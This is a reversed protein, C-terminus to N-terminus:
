LSLASQNTVMTTVAITLIMLSVSMSLGYIMLRGCDGAVSICEILRRDAVPEMLVTVLIHLLVYIVLKCLPLAMTAALFLIVSVGLTNKIVMGSSLVTGAVTEVLSGAGPIMATLRGLMGTGALDVSPVLMSELIHAGFFLSCALRIGKKLLDHLLQCMRELHRVPSFRRFLELLFYYRIGPLFLTLLIRNLILVLIMYYEYFAIGTSLNGSIAVSATYVPIMIKLLSSLYVMTDQFLASMIRFGKFLEMFLVMWVIMYGSDGAFAGPMAMSLSSFFAFFLLIVAMDRCIQGTTFIEGALSSRLWAYIMSGAEKWSLGRILNFLEEFDLVERGTDLLRLEESLAHIDVEEPYPDAEGAETNEGTQEPTYEGAQVPLTKGSKPNMYERKAFEGAQVPLATWENVALSLLILIVLFSCVKLSKM